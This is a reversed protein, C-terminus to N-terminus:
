KGIMMKKGGIIYVGKAPISNLKRGSLDYIANSKATNSEVSEIATIDGVILDTDVIYGGNALIGNKGTCSGGEGIQGGADVSNWDIKYRIRYRGPAQPATFSPCDWNSRADGSISEGASNRGTSDDYFNGSYFSFSYLETGSQDLSGEKSYFEGDINSDIFVYSNMWYGQFGFDAKVTEGPDCSFVKSEDEHFDYYVNEGDFEITQTGRSASTLSISTLYRDHIHSAQADKDFNIAYSGAPNPEPEPEPEPEPNVTGGDLAELIFKAAAGFEADCFPYYTSGVQEVKFYKNGNKIYFTGDGNEEFFLSTGYSLADVNWQQCYIYYGSKTKLRYNSGDAELTFIQDDSESKNTFDVGGNTGSTHENYNGANMYLGTDVHKIRYAEEADGGPEPASGAEFQITYVTKNAANVAYDNAKVTLTLLGTEGNYSKEVSAGAGKTTYSLKAPDYAVGSLDYSLTGENFNLSAGQFSLASLSNYYVFYVEDVQLYDNASGGPTPNTTFTGLLYQVSTQAKDYNFKAEYKVWETSAPILVSAIGIRNGSQDSVEPDKYDCDDHLIFQGRGNPSGGSSFKAYFTVADPRGSFRLSHSADDRKTYNHNSSNSPTTSGMNIMGTTLNGNAKQGFISKSYIQVAYNSGNAGPSVSSPKPSSGKGLGAMSGTASNFSNWGNGPEADKGTYQEFSPDAFQYIGEQAQATMGMFFALAATLFTKKM